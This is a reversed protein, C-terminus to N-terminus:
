AMAPRLVPRGDEARPLVRLLYLSGAVLVSWVAVGLMTGVTSGIGVAYVGIALANNTGHLIIAALLSGTIAYALALAVGFLVLPLIQLLRDLTAFDWHLVGFFLGSVVAGVIVGTRNALSRFIVARFFVEETVPAVLGAMLCFVIMGVVGSNAGLKEPTSDASPEVILSYLAIMVAYLACLVAVTVVSDVPSAGSIGFKKYTLRGVTAAVLISAVLFLSDQVGMSFVTFATSDTSGGLSIYVAGLAGVVVATATLGGLATAVAVWWPWDNPSPKFISRRASGVFIQQNTRSEGPPDQSSM